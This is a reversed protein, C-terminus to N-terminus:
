TSKCKRGVGMLNYPMPSVVSIDKFGEAILLRELRDPNFGTHHAMYPAEKSPMGYIMMLGTVPVGFYSTYIVEETPRVDTLDPVCIIVVGDDNLVRRFESFVQPLDHEYFHEIVHASFIIDFKGIEGMDLIDAVIDPNSRPNIDLKVEDCKGCWEPLDAGGSGVHLIRGKLAM